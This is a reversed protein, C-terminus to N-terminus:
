VWCIFCSWIASNLIRSCLGRSFPASSRLELAGSMGPRHRIGKRDKEAPLNLYERTKLFVPHRKTRALFDSGPADGSIFLVDIDAGNRVIHEVTSGFLWRRWKPTSPKGLVIKIANHTHAYTLIEVGEYHGALTVTEAGLEEALRLTALVRVRETEPLRQQRPTETDRHDM